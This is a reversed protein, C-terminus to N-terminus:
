LREVNPPCFSFLINRLFFMDVNDCVSLCTVIDKFPKANFDSLHILQSTVKTDKFFMNYSTFPTNISKVYKTYSTDKYFLDNPGQSYPLFLKLMNVIDTGYKEIENRQTLRITTSESLMRSTTLELGAQAPLSQEKELLV